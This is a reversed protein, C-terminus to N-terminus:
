GLTNFERSQCSSHQHSPLSCDLCPAPPVHHFLSILFFEPFSLTNVEGEAGGNDRHGEGTGLDGDEREGRKRGEGDQPESSSRMTTPPGAAMRENGTEEGHGRSRGREERETGHM